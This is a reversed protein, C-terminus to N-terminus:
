SNYNTKFYTDVQKLLDSKTLRRDLEIGHNRMLNELGAKTMSGYDPVEFEEEEESEEEEVEPAEEVEPTEKPAELMALAEAETFITTSVLGGGKRKVNYVPEDNINTGVQVMELDSM